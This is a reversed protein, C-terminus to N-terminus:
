HKRSEKRTSSFYILAFAVAMLGLAISFLLLNTSSIEM